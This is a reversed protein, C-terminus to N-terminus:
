WSVTLTSKTRGDSRALERIVLGLLLWIIMLAGGAVHARAPREERLTMFLRWISPAPAHARFGLDAWRDQNNIRLSGAAYREGRTAWFAVGEASESMIDLRYGHDASDGIPPFEFRYSPAQVLSGASVVAGRVRTSRGETVDYLVFRVFGSVPEGVAVPHVEIAHLGDGPMSFTQGLSVDPGLQPTQFRRLGLDDGPLTVSPAVLLAAFVAPVGFWVLAALQFPARLKAALAGFLAAGGASM